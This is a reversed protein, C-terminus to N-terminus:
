KELSGENLIELYNECSNHVKNIETMPLLAYLSIIKAKNKEIVWLQYFVAGFSVLTIIVGIIMIIM